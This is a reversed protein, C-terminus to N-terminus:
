NRGVKRYYTAMQSTMKISLGIQIQGLKPRLLVKYCPNGGAATEHYQSSKKEARFKAM